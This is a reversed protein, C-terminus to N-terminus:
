KHGASGKTFCAVRSMRGSYFIPRNPTHQRSDERSLMQQVETLEFRDSVITLQVTFNAQLQQMITERRSGAEMSSLSNLMLCAIDRNGESSHISNYIHHFPMPPM